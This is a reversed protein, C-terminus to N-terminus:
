TVYSSTRFGSKRVDWGFQRVFADRTPRCYNMVIIETAEPRRFAGLDADHKVSHKLPEVVRDYGAFLDNTLRSDNLTVMWSCKLGKTWEAFEGLDIHHRYIAYTDEYPPDLFAFTSRGIEIDRYDHNTLHVGQLLDSFASLREIMSPSIGNRKKTTRMIGAHMMGRVAWKNVVYYAVARKLETGTDSLLDEKSRHFLDSDGAGHRCYARWLADIFDDPHDRLVTWFNVVDWDIDNATYTRFLRERRSRFLMSLGGAFPEVYHRRNRNILRLLRTARRAKGGPYRLPSNDHIVLDTM